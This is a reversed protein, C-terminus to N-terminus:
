AARLFDTIRRRAQRALGTDFTTFVHAGGPWVALEARNGAATWRASMFLSDDLLPDKTGVTFLAPPLGALDAYLPSVDPDRLDGGARLYFSAFQFIDRTNLVLKEKGWRRVSPTGALDYCGANLNAAAFPSIRHRDRLRLMTVVSLHAGASEGGILLRSTGFRSAAERILWLAAAECDDPGAPYPDEPALRYEVSLSALNCATAFEELMDDQLEASGVTWGGGHIHLYVGDPKEPAVIRLPIPGGPGEIEIVQARPSKPAFPFPGIGKKRNDRVVQPPVSWMDPLRKLTAVLDANFAATEADVADPRFPAPDLSM